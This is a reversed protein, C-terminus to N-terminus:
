LNSKIYNKVETFDFGGSKPSLIYQGDSAFGENLVNATTLSIQNVKYLGPDGFVESLSKITGLDLDTKVIKFLTDVNENIKNLSRLSILKNATGQLVAFQRLSRGFDSDGHRSRVFKLATTGDLNKDGKEFHLHEYRCTFQRELEFGQYKNKFEFIQNETFGCTNMEEGTIPYFPDDFTNPVNVTIGDLNDILKVFGGFDVSIYYNIPLGTVNTIVPTTNQFGTVGVTNIKQNGQVWLDRPISILDVKHTNSNVHVIIISDTLLGGDHNAGGYGLLLANYIGKEPNNKNVPASTAKAFSVSNKTLTQNILGRRPIIFLSILIAAIFILLTLFEAKIYIGFLKKNKMTSNIIYYIKHLSNNKYPLRHGFDFSIRM